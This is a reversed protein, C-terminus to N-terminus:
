ALELDFSSRNGTRNPEDCLLHSHSNISRVCGCVGWGIGGCVGECVGVCVGVCLESM